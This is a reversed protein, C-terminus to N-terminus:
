SAGILTSVRSSLNSEQNQLLSILLAIQDSNFQKTIHTAKKINLSMFGNQIVMSYFANPLLMAKADVIHVRVLLIEQGLRFLALLKKQLRQKLLSGWYMQDRSKQVPQVWTKNKVFWWPTYVINLDPLPNEETIRLYLSIALWWTWFAVQTCTCKRKREWHICRSCMYMYSFNQSKPTRRM